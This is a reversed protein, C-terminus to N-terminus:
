EVSAFRFDSFLFLVYPDIEQVALQAINFRMGNIIVMVSNADNLKQYYLLARIYYHEHYAFM